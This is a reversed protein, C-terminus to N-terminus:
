DHNHEEIDKLYEQLMEDIELRSLIEEVEEAHEGLSVSMEGFNRRAEQITLRNKEIELCIICM